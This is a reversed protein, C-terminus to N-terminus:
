RRSHLGPRRPGCIPVREGRASPQGMAACRRQDARSFRECCDRGIRDQDAALIHNRHHPCRDPLIGYAPGPASGYAWHAITSILWASRDPLKRQTLGEIVRKAVQGPDPAAEWNEVPAFEWALPSDTGGARRYKLYHVADLCATGATGALLGTVVAAVPTMPNNRVRM